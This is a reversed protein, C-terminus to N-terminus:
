KFQLLKMLRITCDKKIPAIAAHAKEKVAAAMGINREAISVRLIPILAGITVMIRRWSVFIGIVIVLAHLPLRIIHSPLLFVEGPIIMPIDLM